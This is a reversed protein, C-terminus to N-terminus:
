KTIQITPIQFGQEREEQRKKKSKKRKRRNGCSSESSCSQTGDSLYLKPPALEPPRRSSNNSLKNDIPIKLMTGADEVNNDDYNDNLDQLNMDSGYVSSERSHSSIQRIFRIAFSARRFANGYMSTSEFQSGTSIHTDTPSHPRTSTMRELYKTKLVQMENPLTSNFGDKGVLWYTKQLGKGKVEIVGRELLQFGQNLARLAEAFDMSVHIHLAKGTSEMRSAMNITDGFLCYRPMTLGVVGAACHGTHLGIRLQLKEEPIHRIRFSTVASLLDLAMNAIEGAHHNCHRPVGSAVMYADGITEVKYVDHMGIIEDFTTYLDNLLDIVQLPTSAGSLNTFGVIDSFFISAESFTEPVVHEGRKLQEAVLPPLMQYLLTDTKQKEQALEQTRNAVLEELNNSYTELMTIMNDLINTKRKGNIDIISKLVAHIDPRFEPVEQWCLRVLLLLREPADAGEPIRPRVPPDEGQRVRNIIAKNSSIGNFYYPPCRLLIEQMVVAFSFVDGKQTGKPPRRSLRLLEPATWLLKAFVDNEADLDSVSEASSAAPTHEDAPTCVAGYDTLKLVWRSDIVCNSSKINGHSRVISKHLFELGRSLDLLFSMKFMHDLKIDENELVDQLSGKSCYKMLIFSNGPEVSVGIFPNLNDHHLDRLANLDKLTERTLQISRQKIEKVAVISGKYCGVTAFLLAKDISSTSGLGLTGRTEARMLRKRPSPNDNSARPEPISTQTNLRPRRMKIESNNVKWVMSLLEKEMKSKRFRLYLAVSVMLIFLVSFCCGIIVPTNNKDEADSNFCNEGQWGCKPSGELRVPFSDNLSGNVQMVVAFDGNQYHTIVVPRLIKGSVSVARTGFKTTFSRKLRSFDFKGNMSSGDSSNIIDAALLVTEYMSVAFEDSKNVSSTFDSVVAADENFASIQLLPSLLDDFKEPGISPQYGILEMEPSAGFRCYIFVFEDSTLGVVSAVKLLDMLYEPQMCILIVRAHDRVEELTDSINQHGFQEFLYIRKVTLDENPFVDNITGILSSCIEMRNAIVALKTWKFNKMLRVLARTIDDLSTYTSIVTTNNPHTLKEVRPLWTFTPISPNLVSMLKSALEM